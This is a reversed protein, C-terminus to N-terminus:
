KKLRYCLFKTYILLVIIYFKYNFDKILKAPYFLGLETTLALHFLKTAAPKFDIFLALNVKKQSVLIKLFQIILPKM